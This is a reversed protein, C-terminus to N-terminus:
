KRTFLDDTIGKLSELRSLVVQESEGRFRVLDAPTPSEPVMELLRRFDGVSEALLVSVLASRSVRTRHAIYDLDAVLSADLALSVKQRKM